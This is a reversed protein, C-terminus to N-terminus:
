YELDLKKFCEPLLLHLCMGQSPALEEVGLEVMIAEQGWEKEGEREAEDLIHLWWDTSRLLPFSTLLFVLNSLESVNEFRNLEGGGRGECSQASNGM